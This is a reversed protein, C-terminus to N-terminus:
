RQGWPGVIVKGSAEPEVAKAPGLRLVRDALAMTQPRHTVLLVTTGVLEERARQLFALEGVDDFMSTPEDLLLVPARKYLARALAVRQAQGSSLTCGGPGLQADLGGPLGEVVSNAVAVDVAWRLRSEDVVNAGLAINWRVSMPLFEVTQPVLSMARRLATIDWDRLDVGDLRISGASPNMFGLVLNLLTTKGAGNPGMIAVVEGPAIDMSVSNMLPDRRPYRFGVGQFTLAGRVRTPAPAFAGTPENPERLVTELRRMAAVGQQAEGFMGVLGGLPRTLMFGYLVFTVLESAPLPTALVGSGAWVIGLVAVGGVLRSVPEVLACAMAFRKGAWRARRRYHDFQGTLQSEAGFAKTMRVMRLHAEALDAGDAELRHVLGAMPRLRRGVLKGFGFFVPVLLTALIGLVPEIAILMVCAGICLVIFPLACTTLQVVANSAASVDYSLLSLLDGRGRRDHFEVRAALLREYVSRRLSAVIDEELAGVLYHGLMGLAAQACILAIVVGIASTVALPSLLGSVLEGVALPVCLTVIAELLLLSVASLVTWQHPRALRFWSTRPLVARSSGSM